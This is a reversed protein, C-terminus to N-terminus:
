WDGCTTFQGHFHPSVVLMEAVQRGFSSDFKANFKRMKEVSRIQKM